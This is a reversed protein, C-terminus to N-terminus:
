VNMGHAFRFLRDNPILDGDQLIDLHDKKDRFKKCVTEEITRAAYLCRTYVKSMTRARDARGMSQLVSVASYSPNIISARPYKGTVDNLNVSQGGAALNCVMFRKKDTQLAEMDEFRTKYTVGGHIQGILDPGFDSSLRSVVAELSDTYNLFILVSKGEDYLEKSMEIITPVKLLEAFRRAKTIVALIHEKYSACRDELRDLEAEMNDYVSQIKDSNVGMDYADCVIQNDPFIDGMDARTLRSGIKSTNFLNQHVSQLKEKSEADDSDFYMAGWQGMPKAGADLCFRKFERMGFNDNHKKSMWQHFGISYGFGRMDLPTMAQTASMLHCRYGQEKIAYLFGSHLSELGKMKHSEDMVILYEKPFKFKGRLFHPVGKCGKNQYKYFKTNGRALKEYNIVLEPNLGFSEMVRKWTPIILKPCIIVFPQNLHRIISCAIYMKGAGTVSGDWSINNTILSYCLKKAHEIQPALLGTSNFNQIM